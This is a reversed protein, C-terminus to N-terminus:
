AIVDPDGGGPVMPVAAGAFGAGAPTAPGGTQAASDTPVTGAFGLVGAGAGSAKEATPGEWAGTRVVAWLARRDEAVRAYTETLSYRTCGTCPDTAWAFFNGSAALQNAIRSGWGPRDVWQLTQTPRPPRQAMIRPKHFCRLHGRCGRTQSAFFSTASLATCM